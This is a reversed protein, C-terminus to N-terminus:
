ANKYNKRKWGVRYVFYVLVIVVVFVVLLVSRTRGFSEYIVLPTIIFTGSKEHPLGQIWYSKNTENERGESYIQFNDNKDTILETKSDNSENIVPSLEMDQYFGIYFIISVSIVLLFMSVLAAKLFNDM